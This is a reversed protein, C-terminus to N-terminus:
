VNIREWIFETLDAVTDLDGVDYAGQLALYLFKMGVARNRKFGSNYTNYAWRSLNM